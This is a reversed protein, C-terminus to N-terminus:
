RTRRASLLQLGRVMAPPLRRLSARTPASRATARLSPTVGTWAQLQAFAAARDTSSLDYLGAGHTAQPSTLSSSDTAAGLAYRGATWPDYEGYLFLLRTGQTQVWQDIDAMPAPTYVPYAVDIPYGGAFEDGNYRTLGVTYDGGSDPFGLEFSAQYYYAEFAALEDDRSGSPPSVGNLFTWMTADSATTAPVSSCESIGHYQWFAWEIGTIGSEVAPGIAIRNYQFGNSTAQTQARSSMANFRTTGLLEVILNRLATRCQSTGVTDLFEAYRADGAERSLPAVYPVTGDVDNPWFRRHYTATMGGKSAGTTLWAGGYIPKLLQVVRHQDAAMQEITLKTWDAPSPRSRGFFRHEISIQNAGLVDTLEYSSDGYFDDYGSTLAIMPAALDRHMLTVHQTFTQGGTVDHDVAQTVALDFCRTSESQFQCGYEDATVGDLDNLRVLLDRTDADPPPADVDGGDDGHDGGDADVDGPTADGDTANSDDGCAAAALLTVLLRRIWSCPQM